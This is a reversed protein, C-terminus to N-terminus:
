GPALSLQVNEWAAVVNICYKAQRWAVACEDEPLETIKGGQPSVITLHHAHTCSLSLISHPVETEIMVVSMPSPTVQYHKGIIAIVEDNV